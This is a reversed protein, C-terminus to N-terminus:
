VMAQGVAVNSRRTVYRRAWGAVSLVGSQVMKEGWGRGTGVPSMVLMRCSAV